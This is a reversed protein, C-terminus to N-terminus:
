SRVQRTILAFTVTTALVALLLLLLTVAGANAAIGVAARGTIVAVWAASFAIAVHWGRISGKGRRGRVVFYGLPTGLLAIPLSLAALMAITRQRVPSKDSKASSDLRPYNREAADTRPTHQPVQEEVGDRPERPKFAEFEEATLRYYNCTIPDRVLRHEPIVEPLDDGCTGAASAGRPILVLIATWAVAAIQHWRLVRLWTMERSSSSYRTIRDRFSDCRNAGTLEGGNAISALRLRSVCIKAFDGRAFLLLQPDTGGGSRVVAREHM